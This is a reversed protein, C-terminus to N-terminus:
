AADGDALDNETVTGDVRKYGCGETLCRVTAGRKLERKVLFAAGCQPCAEPFPKDWSVFDCKTKPWNSCGYFPKGRRSRKETLYGGCGPKPCTVGLSIPKTGTCEPYRTCALFAGFRGRKVKMESGCTDCKEDTKEEAVVKIEGDYGRTFEKTNKCEPYGTCALFQGNRGWKIVMPSGCKECVLDTPIEERKVDRMHEEAHALDAKFPAYFGRLVEVMGDQGEEVRDLREEMQATFDVNLIDPFASVLLDNVLSGLETPFFRGDRKEVYGRDQITSMISAYTSPRGIGKEELEKVLSAESFRAPPQTFHQEPLIKILEIADGEALPPLLRDQEDSKQKDDDDSEAELYVQTFGAFKMIQGTARLTAPGAVIDVATQDYVAPAMQCAVFRNWILTYLKLQDEADRLKEQMDISKEGARVRAALPEVMLRRVTDPDFRTSTPRIAEHAGQAQKASKYVIPEAPLFAAGFREGIYTRVASIAEDALRVSDTRMYTILGVPGEEGLEVGEYLRQALAMTKKATYRLKRAAEQQIRATTFPAAPNRRREKREVKEVRAKAASLASVVEDAQAKIGLEAKEGKWRWLRAQFPPPVPGQCEADVTWYEVPVFAAIEREREVVIRVAVSQVRGASLGRKVKKWLIPSIQYGVLRDLIRRSQQADYKHEDLSTPQALAQTIGKKTIENFLVRHVNTNVDKIQEAIHWAIAEGERDPDPALFVKDANQAAKKIEAIVKTKSPMVVYQPTFDGELDVGMKSKPLDMVHGVSAKVQFGAGLYKKITKAKAPSEVVVLHRKKRGKAVPADDADEEDDDGAGGEDATTAELDDLDTADDHKARGVGKAKGKAKAPARPAPKAAARAEAPTKKIAASAARKTKPKAM